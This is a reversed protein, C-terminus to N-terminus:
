SSHFQTGQMDLDTSPLVRTPAHQTVGEIVAWVVGPESASYDLGIRGLTGSPLGNRLEKWTKGGDTSKHLGSGEGWKKAPDNTDFGDRQREYTAVIMTDPNQPDLRMDIIGTKDDVYLVKEWTEGGDTTKYLGRNECDGWLRGLAGVYVVNEDEPHIKVVGIQFTDKLGMNKWTKGGDTSKFAGHGWSVSNRPNSEGSGVWVVDPNSKSVAISGVSATSEADFQHEYTVGRNTTHLVGGTAMGIWYESSDHPNVAISTVRGGMNAPGVSRWDLHDIWAEPLSSAQQAATPAAAAISLLLVASARLTGAVSPASLM